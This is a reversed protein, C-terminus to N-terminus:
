PQVLPALVQKICDSNQKITSEWFRVVTYGCKKMYADQSKDLRVRKAQMHNLTKFKAPNGHWYDGDFQVIIGYLPIFADVCFKNAILCQPEYDIELEDLLSYGLKELKNPNNKQQEITIQILNERTKPDANRCPISCYTVNYKGSETRSPSWKFDKGCMKCIHHTKHRGQWKNACAISCFRANAKIRAKPIYFTTECEQCKITKGTKRYLSGCKKSCTPQNSCGMRPKFEKKCVKCTNYSLRSAIGKCKLSCFQKEARYTHPQPAYFEKDCVVCNKNRGKRRWMRPFGCDDYCHRSCFNWGPKYRVPKVNIEKQCHACNTKM